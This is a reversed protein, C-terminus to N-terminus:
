LAQELCGRFEQSCPALQESVGTVTPTTGVVSGSAGPDGPEWRQAAPAIRAPRRQPSPM